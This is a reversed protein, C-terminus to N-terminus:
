EVLRDWPVWAAISSCPPCRQDRSERTISMGLWESWPCFDLAFRADDGHRAIEERVDICAEDIPVFCVGDVTIAPEDDGDDVRELDIALDSPVSEMGLLQRRLTRYSGLREPPERMVWRLAAKVDPWAVNSLLEGMTRLRENSRSM